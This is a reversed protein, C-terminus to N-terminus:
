ILDEIPTSKGQKRNNKIINERIEDIEKPPNYVFGKPNPGKSEIKKQIIATKVDISRHLYTLIVVILLSIILGCIFGIVFWM